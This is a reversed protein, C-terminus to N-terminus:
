QQPTQGARAGRGAFGGRGMRGAMAARIHAQLAEQLVPVDEANEAVVLMGVAGMEDFSGEGWHVRRAPHQPNRPNEESNDYSLESDLRTGRPLRVPTQYFYRDQWAFDWDPISLMTKQSGDPLTATMRMTKALYHAHAGAGYVLVDVPLTFTDHIRYDREGAPIDIGAFVGFVPPLQVNALPKEPAKETLYIGITAQESEAKGTPHFHTQIVLDSHKPLPMALDGPLFRPTGGVAWGGLSGTRGGIMGNFGPMGDSGDRKRAGGTNDLFYLVHHVAKRATPRLEVAKVWKNDPLDLKLVFNRYIDPGEAPVAYAKEMTVILDPKGLQWGEPFKPLAPLKAVPGEPMGEAVWQGIQDIQSQSLRREDLFPAAGEKAHWPPMFGSKTVAAILRGRQKVEDYSLLAFPAAEGPRHCTSCHNFVIPAIHETFTVAASKGNDAANALAAAAIAICSIRRM